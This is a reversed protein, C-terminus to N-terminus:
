SKPIENNPSLQSGPNPCKPDLCIEFIVTRLISIWTAWFTSLIQIRRFLLKGTGNWAMEHLQTWPGSVVVLFHTFLKRHLDCCPSRAVYKTGPHTPLPTLNPDSFEDPAAPPPTQFDPFRQRLPELLDLIRFDKVCPYPCTLIRFDKVCPNPCTWFESIKSALTGAPGFDQFRQRLPELPM